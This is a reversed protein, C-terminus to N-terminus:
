ARQDYDYRWGTPIGRMIGIAGKLQPNYSLIYYQRGSPASMSVTDMNREYRFVSYWQEAYRLSVDVEWRYLFGTFGPKFFDLFDNVTQFGDLLALEPLNVDLSCFQLECEVEGTSTVVFDLTEVCTVDPRLKRCAKTRQGTYLQMQQGPFVRPGKTKLEERITQWKIDDEALDAFQKKFNFAVM